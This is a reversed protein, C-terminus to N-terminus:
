TQFNNMLIYCQLGVLNVQDTLEYLKALKFYKLIDNKTDKRAPASSIMFKFSQKIFSKTNNKKIFELIIIYHTPVLSTFSCNNVKILKFFHKPDFSKRSYITVSAGAFIYACFFNLTQM